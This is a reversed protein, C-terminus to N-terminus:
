PTADFDVKVFSEPYYIALLMSEEALLLHMNRAFFDEHQDAIRIMAEERDWIAAGVSFAGLLADGPQLATTVVVPVGFLSRPATGNPVNPLLYAGTNAGSSDEKELEIEEWDTPHVMIAEVSFHALDALTMARRLCDIKTDGTTGSSWQYSQVSPHSFFGTLQDASGDGYLIQREETLTLSEMMQTDIMQRLQGADRAMQNSIPISTALTKVAEQKRDFTARMRPKLKTESTFEYDEATISVGAAHNNSLSDVTITNPTSDRDIATVTATEEGSGDKDFTVVQDVYFGAAGGYESADKPGKVNVVVSSGATVSNRVEGYLENFNTQEIYELGNSALQNRPIFDRVRPSRRRQLFPDRILWPEVLAGGSDADLTMIAYDKRHSLADGLSVAESKKAAKAAVFGKYEDSETFASGISKNSKGGGLGLSRRQKALEFEEMAKAVEAFKAEMEEFREIAGSLKTDLGKIEEDTASKREDLLSKIRDRSEDLASKVAELSVVGKTGNDETKNKEPM